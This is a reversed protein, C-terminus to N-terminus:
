AREEVGKTLIQEFEAADSVETSQVAVLLPYDPPHSIKVADKETIIIAEAHRARAEASCRTWDGPELRYHDRFFNKGQVSIGMGRIDREFRQPNGLAAVLYARKVAALPSGADAAGDQWASFPIFSRIKQRCRFVPARSHVHRIEEVVAEYRGEECPDNIVIMHCRRLQSLPERLTGRPFVRNSALPQGGDIIVVDLDRHLRLHQFGDDLVFAVKGPQKALVSGAQFRNPSIGMHASPVRRRILAPEDGLIGAPLAIKDGPSIIWSRNPNSRGYGRSLIAPRFGQKELIQAVHIVLPTKGTGGMTINGISVVPADLTRKQLLGSAYLACRARILGEFALGPLFLLPKLGAPIRQM